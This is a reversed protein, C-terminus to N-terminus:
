KDASSMKMDILEFATPPTAKLLHKVLFDWGRRTM